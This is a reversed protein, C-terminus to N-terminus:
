QKSMYSSTRLLNELKYGVGDNRIVPKGLAVNFEGTLLKMLNRLDWADFLQTIGPRFFIGM